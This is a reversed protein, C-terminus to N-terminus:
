LLSPNNEQPLSLLFVHICDCVAAAYINKSCKIRRLDQELLLKSTHKAKHGYISWTTYWNVYLYINQPSIKEGISVFIIWYSLLLWLLFLKIQCGIRILAATQNGREERWEVRQATEHGEKNWRQHKMPTEPLWKLETFCSFHIWKKILLNVILKTLQIPHSFWIGPPCLSLPLISCSPASNEHFLETM